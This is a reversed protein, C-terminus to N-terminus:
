VNAPAWAGNVRCYLESPLPQPGRNAVNLSANLVRCNPDSAPSPRSVQLVRAGGTSSTWTQSVPKDTTLANVYAGEIRAQERRDLLKCVGFTAGGAIVAGLIANETRNGRPATAAGTVAGVGAGILTNRMCKSLQTGLIQTTGPAPTQALAVPAALMAAALALATFRM